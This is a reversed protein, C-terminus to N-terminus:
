QIKKRRNWSHPTSKRPLLPEQNYLYRGVKYGLHTLTQTVNPHMLGDAPSKLYTYPKDLVLGLEVFTEQAHAYLPSQFEKPLSRLPDLKSALAHGKLDSDAFEEVIYGALLFAKEVRTLKKSLLYVQIWSVSTWAISLLILVVAVKLFLEILTRRSIKSQSQWLEFTKRIRVRYRLIRLKLLHLTIGLALVLISVAIAVPWDQQSIWDYLRWQLYQDLASFLWM